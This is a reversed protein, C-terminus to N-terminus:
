LGRGELSLAVESDEITRLAVVAEWRREKKRLRLSEAPNVVSVLEAFRPDDNFVIDKIERVRNDLSLSKVINLRILDKIFAVSQPASISNLLDFGYGVNFVDSGMPTEIMVQLAQVFNDRDAIPALDNNDFVLDGNVLQLSRGLVSPKEPQISAM